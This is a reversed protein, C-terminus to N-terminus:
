ASLCALVVRDPPEGHGLGGDGQEGRDRETGTRAPAVAARASSRGGRGRGAVAVGVAAAVTARESVSVPHSGTVSVAGAPATVKLTSLARSALASNSIREAVGFIRVSSNRSGPADPEKM